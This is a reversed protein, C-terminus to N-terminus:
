VTCSGLWYLATVNKFTGKSAGPAPVERVRRMVLIRAFAAAMPSLLIKVGCIWDDIVAGPSFTAFGWCTFAYTFEPIVSSVDRRLVLLETRTLSLKALEQFVLFRENVTPSRLPM